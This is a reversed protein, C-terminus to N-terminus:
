LHDDYEGLYTLAEGIELLLSKDTTNFYPSAEALYKQITNQCNGLPVKLSDVINALILTVLLRYLIGCNKMTFEDLLDDYNEGYRRDKRFIM